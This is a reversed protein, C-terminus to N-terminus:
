GRPDAHDATRRKEALNFIDRDYRLARRDTERVLREHNAILYDVTECFSGAGRTDFITADFDAAALREHIERRFSDDHILRTVIAVYEDDNTAVLEPTGAMRLM